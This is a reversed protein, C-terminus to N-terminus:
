HPVLKRLRGSGCDAFYITGDAGLALACPGDLVRQPHFNSTPWGPALRTVTAGSLLSLGRNDGVLLAGDRRLAIAEIDEYEIDDAPFDRQRPDRGAVVMVAGDTGVRFVCEADSDVFLISGDRAVAFGEIRLCFLRHSSRRGSRVRRL